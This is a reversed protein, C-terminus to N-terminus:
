LTLKTWNAELVPLVRVELLHRCVVGATRLTDKSKTEITMLCAMVLPSLPLTKKQPLLGLVMLVTSLGMLLHAGIMEASTPKLVEDAHAEDKGLPVHLAPHSAVFDVQVGTM